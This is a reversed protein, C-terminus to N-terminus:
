PVLAGLVLFVLCWSFSALDCLGSCLAGLVGFVLLLLFWFASAGGSVGALVFRFQSVSFDGSM